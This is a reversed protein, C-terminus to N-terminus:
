TTSSRLTARKKAVLDRLVRVLRFIFEPFRQNGPPHPSDIYNWAIQFDENEKFETLLPTDGANGEQRLVAFIDEWVGKSYKPNQDPLLRGQEGLMMENKANRMYEREPDLIIELM